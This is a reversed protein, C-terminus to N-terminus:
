HRTEVSKRENKMTSDQYHLDHTLGPVYIGDGLSECKLYKSGVNKVNEWDFERRRPKDCGSAVTKVDDANVTHM